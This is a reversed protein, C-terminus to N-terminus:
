KDRNHIQHINKNGPHHAQEWDGTSWYHIGRVHLFQIVQSFKMSLFAIKNSVPHLYFKCYTGHLM